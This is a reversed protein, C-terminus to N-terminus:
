KEKIIEGTLSRIKNLTNSLKKLNPKDGATVIEKARQLELLKQREREAGAFDRNKLFAELVKVQTDVVNQIQKDQREQLEESRKQAKLRTEFIDRKAKDDQRQEDLIAKQVKLVEARKDAKAKAVLQDAAMEAAPVNPRQINRRSLGLASILGAASSGYTGILDGINFLDALEDQPTTSKALEAEVVKRKFEEADDLISM